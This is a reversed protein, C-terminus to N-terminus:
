LWDRWPWVECGPGDVETLYGDLTRDYVALILDKPYPDKQGVFMLRGNLLLTRAYPFVNDRYWNSGVAAPVLFLIRAGLQSEAACKAAWPAINGFPPNLWNYWPSRPWPQRLANDRKTFYSKCQANKASAALDFRPAGFRRKVAKMFDAPTQYDQRSKGRALAAGTRKMTVTM